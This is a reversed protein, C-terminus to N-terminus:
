SEADVRKRILGLYYMVSTHHKNMVRGIDSYSLNLGRLARALEQRPGLLERCRQRGLLRDKALQHRKLVLDVAANALNETKKNM